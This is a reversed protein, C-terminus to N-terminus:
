SYFCGLKDPALDRGSKHDPDKEGHSSPFSSPCPTFGKDVPRTLDRCATAVFWCSQLLTRIWGEQQQLEANIVAFIGAVCRLSKRCFRLARNHEKRASM